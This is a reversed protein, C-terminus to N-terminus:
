TPELVAADGVAIRGPTRVAAYVRAMSGHREHIRRYNGDTFWQAQHRCPTAFSTVDCVVEGLALRVGPRVDAWPLGRVSVNEGAAGRVIPHGEAHLTDVVEASWLCLVQAPGGHHVRNAQRDPGARMFEVDLADVALKPVGGGSAFLGSVTGRRTAPLQGAARLAPGTALWAEWLAAMTAAPDAGAGADVARFLRRVVAPDRGVELARQIAPADGLYRQVDRASFRYPGIQLM